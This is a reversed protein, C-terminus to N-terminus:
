EDGGENKGDAARGAEEWAHVFIEMAPTLGKLMAEVFNDCVAVFADWVEELQEYYSGPMARNSYDLGGDEYVGGDVQPEDNKNMEKGKM